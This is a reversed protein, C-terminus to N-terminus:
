ELYQFDYNQCGNKKMQDIREQRLSDKYNQPNTGQYYIWGGNYVTVTVTKPGGIVGFGTCSRSRSGKFEIWEADGFIAGDSAIEFTKIAKKKDGTLESAVIHMPIPTTTPFPIAAPKSSFVIIFFGLVLVVVLVVFPFARIIALREYHRLYKIYEESNMEPPVPNGLEALLIKKQNEETLGETRKEIHKYKYNVQKLKNMYFGIITFSAIVVLFAILQYLTTINPIIEFIKDV